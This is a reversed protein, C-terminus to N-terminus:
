QSKLQGTIKKGFNVCKPLKGEAVPGKIGRVRLSLGLAILNISPVKKDVIKELKKTARDVREKGAYSLFQM